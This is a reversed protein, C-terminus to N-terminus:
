RGDGLEQPLLFPLHREARRMSSMAEPVQGMVRGKGVPSTSCWKSLHEDPLLQSLAQVM